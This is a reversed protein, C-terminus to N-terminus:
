ADNFEKLLRIITDRVPGTQIWKKYALTYWILHCLIALRRFEGYREIANFNSLGFALANELMVPAKMPRQWDIIYLDNNNGYLINGKSLDGHVNGITQNDYCLPAKEIIWRKYKSTITSDINDLTNGIDMAVASFKEITSFDWFVPFCKIEQFRKNLLTLKNAFAEEDNEEHQINHIYPFVM